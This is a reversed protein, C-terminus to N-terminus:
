PWFPNRCWAIFADRHPADWVACAEVPDFRGSHFEGENWWGGDDPTGGNWVSLVFAAAQGNGSTRAGGSIWRAFALQDWPATGPMGRLSPFSWCLLTMRERSDM